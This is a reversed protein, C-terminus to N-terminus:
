AKGKRKTTANKRRGMTSKRRHRAPTQTHASVRKRAYLNKGNETAEGIPNIGARVKRQEGGRSADVGWGERKAKENKGHPANGLRGRATRDNRKHVTHFRSL